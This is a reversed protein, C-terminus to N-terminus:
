LGRQPDGTPPEIKIVDAGLDAMIAGAGPVFTWAAVEVVRVGDFPKGAATVVRRLTVLSRGGRVPLVIMRSYVALAVGPGLAGKSRVVISRRSGPGFSTTM